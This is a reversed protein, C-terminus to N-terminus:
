EKSAQKLGYLSKRPLCMFNNPNPVGESVQMYMEEKLNEHLFVNNVDLQHLSWQKSAAVSLLTRVISMKIVLSFTEEYGIGFKQNYGKEVLRAKCRELTNDSELKVKYVWKSGIPNKNPPFPILDWTHNANLAQIETQMAQAWLPHSSAEKYSRPESIDCM